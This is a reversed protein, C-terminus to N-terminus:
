PVDTREDAFRIPDPAPRDYTQGKLLALTEKRDHYAERSREDLVRLTGKIDTFQRDHKSDKLKLDAVDDELAKIRQSNQAQKVLAAVGSAGGVTGAADAAGSAGNFLSMIWDGFAM